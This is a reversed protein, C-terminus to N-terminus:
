CMSPRDIHKSEIKIFNQLNRTTWSYMCFVRLCEWRHRQWMRGDLTRQRRGDDDVVLCRFFLLLYICWNRWRMEACAVRAQQCRLRYPPSRRTALTGFSFVSFFARDPLTAVNRPYRAREHEGDVDHMHTNTHRKTHRHTNLKLRNKKNAESTWEDSETWVCACVFLQLACVLMAITEYVLIPWWYVAM